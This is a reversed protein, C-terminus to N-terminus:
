KGELGGDRDAKGNIARGKPGGSPIEGTSISEWTCFFPHAGSHEGAPAETRM